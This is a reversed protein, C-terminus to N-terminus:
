VFLLLALAGLGLLLATAPLGLLPLLFLTGALAGLSGGALDAAYLPAVVEGPATVGAVSAYGFLAGTAGGAAFLLLAAGALGLDVDAGLLAATALAVASGALVIGAGARRAAGRGLRRDAWHSGAALGAMFLTLLLGLDQFLVGREVQYALVLTGELVMGFAGAAAVLLARRLRPRRRALAAALAVLAIAVGAAAADFGPSGVFPPTEIRGLAPFYRALWVLLTLQYCIPRADRNEPAVTRELRAAIQARRDNTLLYRLWPATVLRSEIRRAALRATLLEPDLELRSPSALFLNTAGPLVAVAPFVAALAREISAARRAVLPTWLNEAGRLRLALVGGPALHDACAAFFERTYFRNAQGSDPEPQGVLILDYRASRALFARPEALELRVAHAALAARTAAPLHPLVADLLRRDLEVLDVREPAHRLVEPALGEVAGGLLLVARPAAVALAAVHVFEEAATGESEWALAGNQFVAVQGGAGTVTARGYPTDVTAVLGPHNWATTERDLRGAALLAAALPFLLVLAAARLRPRPGPAPLAAAALAGLAALLATRLNGAGAALLLTSAAGGALGGLCEVAYAAALTGGAAVSAAAARQFLLGGVLGGPLLVLAMGAALAPMSLFAGPTGGLVVQLGRALAVTAPLLAGFLLFLAGPPAPRRAPLARGALTGAASGALLLALGLLYVLESGYGAVVLERLM